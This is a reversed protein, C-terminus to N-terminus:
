AGTAGGTTSPEELSLNSGHITALLRVAQEGTLGSADKPKWSSWAAGEAWPRSSGSPEAPNLLRSPVHHKVM